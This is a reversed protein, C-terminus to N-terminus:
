PGGVSAVFKCAGSIQLALRNGVYPWTHCVRLSTADKALSQMVCGESVITDALSQLRASAEAPNWRMPSNVLCEARISAFVREFRQRHVAPVGTDLLHVRLEECMKGLTLATKEDPPPM